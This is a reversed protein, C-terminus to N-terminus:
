DALYSLPYLKIDARYYNGLPVPEGVTIRPNERIAMLSTQDNWNNSFLFYDPRTQEIKEARNFVWNVYLSPINSEAAFFPAWDGAISRGNEVKELLKTRVIQSDYSPSAVNLGTIGISMLLYAVFSLKIAAKLQIEGLKQRYHYLVALIAAAALPFTWLMGAKSFGSYDDSFPSVLYTNAVNMLSLVTMVILGAVLIQEPKQMEHWSKLPQSAQAQRYFWDVIIMIAAPVIPVSYRPPNYGFLNLLVPALVVTAAMAMRFLNRRLLQSNEAISHIICLYATTALFPSLEAINNWFIVQPHAIIESIGGAVRRVWIGRALFLVMLLTLALLSVIVLSKRTRFRAFREDLVFALAIIACAPAVYVLGSMKVALGAMLGFVALISIALVHQHPKVLMLLFFGIFTFVILDMEFLAVRSFSFLAPDIAIMFTALLAAGAGWFHTTVAAVLLIFAGFLIVSVLRASALELGWAKFALYYSQQTFPSGKSWGPYDDNANWHTDGFVIRNRADLTKYGEDIQLGVDHPIYWGPPDADLNLLRAGIATLVILLLM